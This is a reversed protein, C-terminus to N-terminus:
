ASSAAQATASDGAPRAPALRALEDGAVLRVGAERAAALASAKFTGTTVIMGHPPVPGDERLAAAFERVAAPGIEGATHRGLVVWRGADPDGPSAVAELRVAGARDTHSVAVVELGGAAVAAHLAREFAFWGDVPGPEATPRDGYLLRLASRSRYVVPVTGGVGGGRAHPRVFTFGPPVAVGHGRAVELQGLSPAARRLHGSVEHRGARRLGLGREVADAAARTVPAVRPLYVYRQRRGAAEGTRPHPPGRGAASRGGPGDASRAPRFIAEREEAVWFDRVVAALFLGIAASAERHRDILPSDHLGTIPLFLPAAAPLIAPLYEGGPTHFVAFVNGYLERLRVRGFPGFPTGVEAWAPITYRKGAAAEARLSAALAEAAAADAVSPIQGAVEAVDVPVDTPALAGGWDVETVPCLRGWYMEPPFGAPFGSPDLDLRGPAEGLFDFWRVTRGCQTMRSSLLHAGAVWQLLRVRDPPYGDLRNDVDRRLRCLRGSDGLADLYRFCDRIGEAPCEGLATLLEALDTSVGAPIAPRGAACSRGAEALDDVVLRLCRVWGHTLREEPPPLYDPHLPLVSGVVTDWFAARPDGMVPLFRGAATSIEAAQEEQLIPVAPDSWGCPEGGSVEVWTARRVRTLQDFVPDGCSIHVQGLPGDDRFRIAFVGGFPSETLVTDGGVGVAEGGLAQRCIAARRARAVRDTVPFVLVPCTRGSVAVGVLPHGASAAARLRPAADPTYESRLIMRLHADSLM